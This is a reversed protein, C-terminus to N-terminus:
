KIGIVILESAPEIGIENLRSALVEFEKRYTEYQPKDKIREIQTQYRQIIQEVPLGEDSMDYEYVLSHLKNLGVNEAISLIDQKLFTKNHYIGLIRDIEAGFHHIYVHSLQRERQEDSFMENIIFTGGPKLVRFMEGLTKDINVLHHLTNSIAVTDFTNDEYPIYENSVIKFNVKDSQINKNAAEIAKDNSDIGIIKNYDKLEEMLIEVFSGDGTGVDLVTGGSIDGLFEKLKNM